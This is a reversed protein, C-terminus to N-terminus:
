VKSTVGVMAKDWSKEYSGSSLLDNVADEVVGWENDPVLNDWAKYIDEVDVVREMHGDKKFYDPHYDTM